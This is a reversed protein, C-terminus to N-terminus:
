LLAERETGVQVKTIEAADFAALVIGRYVQESPDSLHKSFVGACEEIFANDFLAGVQTM